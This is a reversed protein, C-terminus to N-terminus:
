RKKFIAFFGKNTKERGAGDGTLAILELDPHKGIFISFDVAFSDGTSNFYYVGNKYSRIKKNLFDPATIIKKNVVNIINPAKVETTYITGNHDLVVYFYKQSSNSDDTFIRFIIKNLASKPGTYSQHPLKFPIIFKKHENIFIELKQVQQKMKLSTQNISMKTKKGNIRGAFLNICGESNFAVSIPITKATVWIPDIQETSLHSSIQSFATMYNLSLTITLALM